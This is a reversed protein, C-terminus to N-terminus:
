TEYDERSTATEGSQHTHSSGPASDMENMNADQHHIEGAFSVDLLILDSLNTNTVMKLVHLQKLSHLHALTLASCCEMTESHRHQCNNTYAQYYVEIYKIALTLDKFYGILNDSAFPPPSEKDRPAIDQTGEKEVRMQILSRSTQQM